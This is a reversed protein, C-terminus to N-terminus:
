ASSVAFADALAELALVLQVKRDIHMDADLCRDLLRLLGEAGLREVLSQLARGDDADGDNAESGASLRLAAELFEILLTLVLTARQRQAASEKGAEEVFGTLKKALAVTDPRPVALAAVFEKRFTWLQEDALDRAMGLSGGSLRAVRAAREPEIGQG